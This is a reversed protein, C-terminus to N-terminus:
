ACMGVGFIRPHSSAGEVSWGARGHRSRPPSARSAELPWSSRTRKAEPEVTTDSSAACKRSTPADGHREVDRGGSASIAMPEYHEVLTAIFDWGGGDRSFSANGGMEMPEESELEAEVDSRNKGAWV